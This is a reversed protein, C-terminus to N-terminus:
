IKDILPGARLALQIGIKLLKSKALLFIYM